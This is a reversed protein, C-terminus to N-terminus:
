NKVAKPEVYRGNVKLPEIHLNIYTGTGFHRRLEREIDTARRHAEYLTLGGPMRLHMEISIRNGIRRTRLNHVGSVGDEAEAIDKIKREIEEPLSKELLEDSAQKMLALATKIIFISVVVAAIPDLVTWREGLFIAGGIGLATGVSSFADSRHHWANAVVAQSQAERGVRVTFRYCWEKSVISILAAWLAIMGPQPLVEGRLAAAIKEAGGYLIMIGVAFLALGIFATALTEYKGHGYDHDSDQPKNSLKVFVIVVVDTVLDSLSHVADAIMASSRGLVGFAFKLAVLLVNIISGLVTVRYIKRERLRDEAMENGKNGDQLSSSQNNKNM